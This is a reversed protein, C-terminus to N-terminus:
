QLPREADDAAEDLPAELANAVAPELAAGRLGVALVKGERDLLLACPIGRIAYQAVLPNKWGAESEGPFHIQPWPLKREEVFEALEDASNDLSVGVVEFGKDHYKEYVALVNPMEAVCPGCWTAWFDVLVVKGAFHKVLDFEGGGALPGAIELAQGVEVNTLAQVPRPRPADAPAEGPPDTDPPEVDFTREASWAGWQGDLKARVKWRWGPLNHGAIYGRGEFHFASEPLDSRDIVPFKAKSGIVHLHYATAGPVDSWDFDWIEPDSGDFRGNDLVAGEPPSLLTPIGAVVEEAPPEAPTGTPADDAMTSESSIDNPADDATTSESPPDDPKAAEPSIVVKEEAALPVLTVRLVSEGGREVEFKESVTKFNKGTVLLNHEGAELTLPDDLGEIHVTEGDVKVQVNAAPSSLEIRITGNRTRVLLVIGLLILAFLGGCGLAIWPGLRRGGRAPARRAHRFLVSKTGQESELRAFFRDALSEPGLLSDAAAVPRGASPNQAGTPARGRAQLYDALETALEGANAYRDALRKAMAKRCIAALDRDVDPRREALPAPEQTLIKSLVAGVSGDFPPRGSLLEYLMVGLSYVDSPPGMAELDGEVQEPSMYAPTGVISGSHTLRTDNHGLRRALGFDMIVPERRKDIMINSPKLDRHIIGRAHAEQLALALKRVVAAVQRQPLPKGDTLYDSLPRGEICAMTLYHTGDIEGVDFVPCINPHQITAASRAERYFREVAEPGDEARFHPVKLAVQRDLQTDLALYVTGMGGRGLRKLIRYRGFQSSLRAPPSAPPGEPPQTHDYALTEQVAQVVKSSDSRIRNPLTRNGSEADGARDMVAEM